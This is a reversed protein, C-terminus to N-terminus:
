LLRCIAQAQAHLNPNQQVAVYGLPSEEHQVINGLNLMVVHGAVVHEIGVALPHAM